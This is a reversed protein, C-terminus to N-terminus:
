FALLIYYFFEYKKSFFCFGYKNYMNSSNRWWNKKETIDQNTKTQVLWTKKGDM